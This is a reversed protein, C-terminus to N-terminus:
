GPCAHSRRRGRHASLMCPPRVQVAAAFWPDQETLFVSANWPQAGPAPVGTEPAPQLLWPEVLQRSAVDVHLPSRSNSFV